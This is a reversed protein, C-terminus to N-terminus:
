IGVIDPVSFGVLVLAIESSRYLVHLVLLISLKKDRALTFFRSYEVEHQLYCSM